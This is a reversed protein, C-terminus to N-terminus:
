DMEKELREIERRVTENNPNLALHKRYYELAKGLRGTEQYFRGTLSYLDAAQPNEELSKLLLGEAKADEKLSNHYLSFFNRIIQVDDPNNILASLYNQEAKEYEKLDYHYIAALNAFSLSNKPWIASAYQWATIAGEFDGSNRKIQAIQSIAPLTGFNTKLIQERVEQFGELVRNREGETLNSAKIQPENLISQKMAELRNDISPEERQLKLAM